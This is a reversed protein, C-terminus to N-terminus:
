AIESQAGVAWSKSEEIDSEIMARVLELVKRRLRPRTIKPFTAALEMGENTLLFEQASPASIGLPAEGPVEALGEYFYSVSTKLAQAVEWLKSASVRNAGREYKQVQQFTLGLAEALKEQSFSMEKRRMRIRLGVHRDIPHPGDRSASVDSNFVETM